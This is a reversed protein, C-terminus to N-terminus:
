ERCKLEKVELMLQQIASICVPILANYDVVYYGDGKKSVAYPMLSMLEQAVVGASRSGDKKWNFLVPRIYQILSAGVSPKMTMINTKLREDSSSRFADGTITGDATINGGINSNTGLNTYPTVRIDGGKLTFGKGSETDIQLAGTLTGGSLPLYTKSAFEKDVWDEDMTKSLDQLKDDVSKSTAYDKEIRAVETDLREYLKDDEAQLESRLAEIDKAHRDLAVKDDFLAACPRLEVKTGQMFARATTNDWGRQVTLTDGNRANCKCIEINGEDDELTVFFWTVGESANPFRDGQSGSLLLQQATDTIEVALEGWANNTVLAGM